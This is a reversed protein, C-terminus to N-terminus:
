QDDVHGDFFLVNSRGDHRGGSESALVETAEGASKPMGAYASSMTYSLAGPQDVPCSMIGGINMETMAGDLGKATAVDPLHRHTQNYMELGAGIQKLNSACQVKQARQRSHSLVPLLIAILFVVIGIVVLIEVLTFGHPSKKAVPYYEGGYEMDREPEADVARVAETALERVGGREAAVAVPAAEPTEGSAAVGAMMEAELEELHRLEAESMGEEKKEARPAPATLKEAPEEPPLKGVLMVIVMPWILGVVGAGGAM